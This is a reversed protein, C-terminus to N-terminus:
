HPDAALARRYRERRSNDRMIEYAEDLVEIILDVDDRLEATAATLITSPEFEHRLDLYAHRIEYGTAEREVGLFAFYDGEDVLARRLAIKQRVASDDFADRPVVAPEVEADKASPALVTLVRLAVLAHLANAFDPAGAEKLVHSITKGASQDIIQLEQNSLACENLLTRSPGFALRGRQGGLLQMAFEPSLVRRLTEILVEAGTAGGFVAPESQLRPPLETEVDGSGQEVSLTKGLLWEAHARLVPWLEDQRLHGHAILAAGAHRGFQPLKRELRAADPSLNGRQILFAVLSEGEIGSAVMVFDGDRLVVRRVGQEDEVAYAGSFRGRILEALARVVDGKGLASPIVVDAALQAPQPKNEPPRERAPSPATLRPDLARPRSLRNNPPRTPEKPELSDRRSDHTHNAVPPATSNQENVAEPSAADAAAEAETKPRLSQQSTFVPADTDDDIIFGRRQPPQFVTPPPLSDTSISSEGSLTQPPLRASMPIFSGKSAPVPTTGSLTGPAVPAMSTGVAAFTGGPRSKGTGTDREFMPSSPPVNSRFRSKDGAHTGPNSLEDADDVELPEDLAALVDPPLIADLEAEPSMHEAPQSTPQLSHSVPGLKNEANELLYELEKSVHTVPFQPAQQLSVPEEPPPRSPGTRGPIVTEGQSFIAGSPLRISPAPGSSRRHPAPTPARPSASDRLSIPPLRPLAALSLGPMAPHNPPSGILEEVSQLISYVDIPRPFLRDKVEIGINSLKDKLASPDGGLLLVEVGKGWGGGHMRDLVDILKTASGDCVVLNPHQTEVRGAMLMLPVDRVKFGRARLSAILREAETTTDSVLVLPDSPSEVPPAAVPSSSPV